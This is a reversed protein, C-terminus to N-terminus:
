TVLRKWTPGQLLKGSKEDLGKIQRSLAKMKGPNDSRMIASATVEDKFYLSKQELYYQESCIYTKGQEEFPSNHHNSLFSKHGFFFTSDCKSFYRQGKYTWKLKEPMDDMNSVTFKKGDIWLTDGILSCIDVSPDRKAARLCPLLTARNERVSDPFDERVHYSRDNLSWSSKWIRDRDPFYHFRIIVLRPRKVSEAVRHPPKGLRHVRSLSIDGGNPVGLNDVFFSLIKSKIDENPSEPIGEIILNDRRSYMELSMIKEDQQKIITELEDVKTELTKIEAKLECKIKDAARTDTKLFKLEKVLYSFAEVFWDPATDQLKQVLKNSALDSVSQEKPPTAQNNMKKLISSDSNPSQMLDEAGRKSM